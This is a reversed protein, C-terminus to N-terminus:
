EIEFGISKGTEIAEIIKPMDEGRLRCILWRGDSLPYHYIEPARYGYSVAVYNGYFQMRTKWPFLTKDVREFGATMAAWRLTADPDYDVDLSNEMRYLESMKGTPEGDHDRLFKLREALVERFHGVTTEFGPNSRINNNGLAVLGASMFGNASSDGNDFKPKLLMRAWLEAAREFIRDSTM